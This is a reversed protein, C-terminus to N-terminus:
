PLGHTRLRPGLREYNENGFLTRSFFGRYSQNFSNPGLNGITILVLAISLRTKHWNDINPHLIGPINIEVVLIMTRTLWDYQDM